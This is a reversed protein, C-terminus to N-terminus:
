GGYFNGRIKFQLRGVDNMAVYEVYPAPLLSNIDAYLLIESLYRDRQQRYYLNGDRIYTLIIDSSATQAERHDDLTARPSTSGAPLDTIVNDEITTDFWFFKAEGNSVFAVFPHMLQDFALSVQTISLSSFLVVPAVDDAYVIVDDLLPPERPITTCEWVKVRLGQSADQLAVGGLERSVLDGPQPIPVETSSFIAQSSLRDEPIM